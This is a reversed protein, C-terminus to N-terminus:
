VYKLITKLPLTWLIYWKWKIYTLEFDFIVKTYINKSIKYLVGINHKWSHNKSCAGYRIYKAYRVFYIDGNGITSYCTLLVFTSIQCQIWKDTLALFAGQYLCATKITCIPVYAVCSHKDILCPEWVVLFFSWVGPYGPFIMSNQIRLLFIHFIHSLRFFQAPLM